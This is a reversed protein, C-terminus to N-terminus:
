NQKTLAGCVRSMDTQLMRAHLKELVEIAICRIMLVSCQEAQHKCLLCLQCRAHGLMMHLM